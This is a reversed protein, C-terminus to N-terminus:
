PRVTTQSTKQLAPKPAQKTPIVKKTKMIESIMKQNEIANKNLEELIAIQRVSSKDSSRGSELSVYLALTAIALSLISIGLSIRTIRKSQRSQLENLGLSIYPSFQLVKNIDVRSANIENAYEDIAEVLKKDSLGRPYNSYVNAM